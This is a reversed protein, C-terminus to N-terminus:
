QSGDVFPGQAFQFGYSMALEAHARTEVGKAILKTGSALAADILGQLDDDQPQGQDLQQIKELRVKAFSPSSQLLELSALPAEGFDDLALQINLKDLQRSLWTLKWASTAASARLEVVIAADPELQRLDQLSEILDDGGFEAPHTNLFLAMQGHLPCAELTGERRLLKNLEVENAVSATSDDVRSMPPPDLDTSRALVELGCVVQDHLRVIPHYAPAILHTSALRDDIVLEDALAAVRDLRRDIISVSQPSTENVLPLIVVEHAHFM